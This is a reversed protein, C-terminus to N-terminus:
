FPEILRLREGAPSYVDVPLRDPMPMPAAGEVKFRPNSEGMLLAENYYVYPFVYVHGHGDVLVNRLAPMTEPWEVVLDPFLAFYGATGDEIQQTIPERQWTVRLAWAMGGPVDLAHVQYESGMTVYVRGSSRGEFQPPTYPVGVSTETMAGPLAIVRELPEGAESVRSVFVERRMGAEDRLFEIEWGALSGDGFGVLSGGFSQSHLPADRLLEGGPSFFSIRSSDLVVLDGAAYEIESPRSFEGPGQGEGGFSGIFAGDADYSRVVHDGYDVVHIRGDDDVAVDRPRYLAYDPESGGISLDLSMEILEDGREGVPVGAYEVVPTGEPVPIEWDPFELPAACAAPILALLAAVVKVHKVSAGVLM